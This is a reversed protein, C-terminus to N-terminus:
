ANPVMSGTCNFLVWRASTLQKPTIVKLYYAKLLPWYMRVMGPQKQKSSPAVQEVTISENLVQEALRRFELETFLEKLADKNIEEVVM